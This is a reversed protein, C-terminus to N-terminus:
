EKSETTKFTKMCAKIKDGNKMAFERNKRLMDIPLFATETPSYVSIPINKNLLLCMSIYAVRKDDAELEWECTGVGFEYKQM